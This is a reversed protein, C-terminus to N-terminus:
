AAVETNCFRTEDKGQYLCLLVRIDRANKYFQTLAVNRMESTTKIKTKKVKKTKCDVYSVVLVAGHRDSDNRDSLGAHVKGRYCKGSKKYTVTGAAWGGKGSDTTVLDFKWKKTPAAASAVVATGLLGAIILVVAGMLAM